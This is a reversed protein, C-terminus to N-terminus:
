RSRYLVASSAEIPQRQYCKLNGGYNRQSNSRHEFCSFKSQVLKSCNTFMLHDMEIIEALMNSRVNELLLLM